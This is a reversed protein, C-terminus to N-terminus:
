SGSGVGGGAGGGSGSGSTGNVGTTSLDPLPKPKDLWVRDVALVAEKGDSRQTGRGRILDSPNAVMVALNSASAGTPYWVDTRHYPDYQDCAALLTVVGLATLHRASVRM